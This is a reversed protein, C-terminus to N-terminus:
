RYNLLRKLVQKDVKGSVTRLLEPLFVIQKPIKFKAIRGDCFSRIAEGTVIQKPQLVVAACGVEGWKPDALGVVAFDAIYRGNVQPTPILYQGKPLRFNLLALATPDITTVPVGAASTPQFTALLTPASRDDTLGPTTLINSSLSNIPSAANREKTGQYSGFFFIRDKKIPGGITGGYVNRKLEPRAVGAAKLFPNNANLADNRFYEYM